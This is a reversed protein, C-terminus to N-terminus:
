SVSVKRSVRARNAVLTTSRNRADRCYACATCNQALHTNELYVGQHPPLDTLSASPSVRSHVVGVGDLPNPVAPALFIILCELVM